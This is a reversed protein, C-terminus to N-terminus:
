RGTIAYHHYLAVDNGRELRVQVRPRVQLRKAAFDTENQVTHSPAYAATSGHASHEGDPRKPAKRIAVSKTSTFSNEFHLGYRLQPATHPQWDPPARSHSIRSALEM